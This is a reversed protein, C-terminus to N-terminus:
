LQLRRRKTNAPTAPITLARNPTISPAPPSSGPSSPVNRNLKDILRRAARQIQGRKAPSRTYIRLIREEYKEPVCISILERGIHYKETTNYKSFFRVHDIPNESGKGFHIRCIDVLVDHEVFDDNDSRFGVIAVPTVSSDIASVLDPPLIYEDVFKYTDRVHIRAILDRAAQLEPETSREIEYLLNDTLTQYRRPDTVAQSIHLVPDAILMADVIMFEIAKAARHSYVRKHMSYRTHFMETLNFAEKQNYCIEDDIVRSNLILRSFDYSSPEGVNYCDRQVYDFRDVDVGNRKNAVIDFLFMKEDRMPTTTGRILQKIFAIDASDLFDIANDDILHDLMMESGMEHSWQAGPQARPIFENDFVHSFPGHGLDHCLGALTVCRIDRVSIELEPQRKALGQVVEGALFATGICHEFRNHSGGPFVFYSTGMQKLSRLRQFQPTDIIQLMDESLPIYGHIPDKVHTSHDLVTDGLDDLDTFGRRLLTRQNM